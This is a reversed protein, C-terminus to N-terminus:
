NEIIVYFLTKAETQSMNKTSKSSFQFIHVLVNIFTTYDMFHTISFSNPPFIHKLFHNSFLCKIEDNSVNTM